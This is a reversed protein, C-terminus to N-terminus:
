KKEIDRHNIVCKQNKDLLEKYLLESIVVSRHKGGTCGIGIVLNGKGEEVYQPILFEIMDLLKDRFKGSIENEMVFDRIEPELGTKERLEAVYFPNPLFRVDFVLDCDLPLGFKFGFSMVNILMKGEADNERFLIKINESLHETKMSSTDIVYDAHKKIEKLLERERKIGDRIGKGYQLPHNRRTEKYRKIITEDSAELFLIKHEIGDRQLQALEGTLESFMEHSRVDVVMAVKTLKGQSNYCMEAFKSILVPPMNDVCYFGMDELSRIAKTKGAGSLGTVIIVKM